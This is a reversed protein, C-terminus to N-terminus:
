IGSVLEDIVVGDGATVWVTEFSQSQAAAQISRLLSTKGVGRPGVYIQLQEALKNTSVSTLMMQARRLQQERGVLDRAISSPTYPSEQM